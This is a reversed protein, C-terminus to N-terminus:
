INDMVMWAITYNANPTPANWKFTVSTTTKGTVTIPQFDPSADSTNEWTATVNYNTTSLASSFSVTATTLGSGISDRGARVVATSAAVQTLNILATGTANWGITKSPDPEPLSLPTIGSTESILAARELKNCLEQVHMLLRDLATEHSEAPFASSELYDTTQTKTSERIILLKQSSTPATNMTVDTPPSGGTLTYHTTIVQLAETAPFVSEDRLVVKIQDNDFFDFPIAFVTTSDNGVYITQVTTNSVTM